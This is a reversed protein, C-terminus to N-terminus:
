YKQYLIFSNLIDRLDDDLESKIDIVKNRIDDINYKTLLFCLSDVLIEQVNRNSNKKVSKLLSEILIYLLKSDGKIRYYSPLIMKLFADIYFTRYNILQEINEIIKEFVNLRCVALFMRGASILMNCIKGQMLFTFFAFAIDLSILGIVKVLELKKDEEYESVVYEVVPYAIEEPTEYKLLLSIQGFCFAHFYVSIFESKCQYDVQLFDIKSVYIGSALKAIDLPFFFYRSSNDKQAVENFDRIIHKTFCPRFRSCFEAMWHIILVDHILFNKLVSFLDHLLMNHEYVILRILLIQVVPIIYECSRIDNMNLQNQKSTNSLSLYEKVINVISQAFKETQLNSSYILLVLVDSSIEENITKNQNILAIFKEALSILMKSKVSLEESYAYREIVVMEKSYRSNSFEIFPLTSRLRERYKIIDNKQEITRTNPAYSLADIYTLIIIIDNSHCVAERMEKCLKPKASISLKRVIHHIANHYEDKFNNRLHAICQPLLVNCSSHVLSPLLRCLFPSLMDYNVPKKGLIMRFYNDIPILFIPVLTQAQKVTCRSPFDSSILYELISNDFSYAYLTDKVLDKKFIDSYFTLKAKESEKSHFYISEMFENLKSQGLDERGTSDPKAVNPFTFHYIWMKPANETLRTMSDLKKIAKQYMLSTPEFSIFSTKTANGDRILSENLINGLMSSSSIFNIIALAFFPSINPRSLFYEGFTFYNLVSSNSLSYIYLVLNVYFPIVRGYVSKYELSMTQLMEIIAETICESYEKYRLLIFVQVRNSILLKIHEKLASFFITKDCIDNSVETDYELIDSDFYDPLFPFPFIQKFGHKPRIYSKLRIIRSNISEFLENLIWSKKYLGWNLDFSDFGIMVPPIKKVLYGLIKIAYNRSTNNENNTLNTTNKTLWVSLYSFSSILSFLSSNDIEKKIDDLSENNHSILNYVKSLLKEDNDFSRLM